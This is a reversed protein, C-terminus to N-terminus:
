GLVSISGTIYIETGFSAPQGYAGAYSTNIRSQIRMRQGVTATILGVIRSNDSVNDAIGTIVSTGTLILAGTDADVIRSQASNCAFLTTFFDAFFKGAATFTFIGTATDLSIISNLDSQVFNLKRNEWAGATGAGGGVGSNETHQLIAVARM